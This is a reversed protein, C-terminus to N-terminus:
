RLFIKSNPIKFLSLINKLYGKSADTNLFLTKPM